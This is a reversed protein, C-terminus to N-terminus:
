IFYKNVIKYCKILILIKIYDINEEAEHNYVIPPQMILFGVNQLLRQSKIFKFICLMHM